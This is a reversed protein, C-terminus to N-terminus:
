LSFHMERNQHGCCCCREECLRRNRCVSSGTTQVVNRIQTKLPLSHGQAHKQLHGYLLSIKEVFFHCFVAAGQFKPMKVLLIRSLATVWGLRKWKCHLRRVPCGLWSKPRAPTGLKTPMRSAKRWLPRSSPSTAVRPSNAVWTWLEQLFLLFLSTLSFYRSM